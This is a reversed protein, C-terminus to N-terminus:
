ALLRKVYNAIAEDQCNAFFLERFRDGSVAAKLLEQDVSGLVTVMDKCSASKLQKLIGRNKAM